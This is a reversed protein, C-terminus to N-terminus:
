SVLIVAAAAAAIMPHIRGSMNNKKMIEGTPVSSRAATPLALICPLPNIVSALEQTLRLTIYGNRKGM